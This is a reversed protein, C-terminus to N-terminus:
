DNLGVLRNLWSDLRPCAERVADLGANEIADVGDISKHYSPLAAAVRKSPATTPGDNILEVDGNMEDAARQLQDYARENGLLSRASIAAAIVLTEFEHLVINPLFRRSSFLDAMAAERAEVCTRPRHPGTCCDRGPAGHPYAYFDIMTTVLDWHSGGLLTRIDREYHTWTGGGRSARGAPRRSTRVPIPRLYTEHRYAWPALVRAVFQEETQGELSIAVQRM